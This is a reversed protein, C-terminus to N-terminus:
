YRPFIPIQQALRTQRRSREFQTRLRILIFECIDEKEFIEYSKATEIESVIYEMAEVPTIHLYHILKAALTLYCDNEITGRTVLRPDPTFKISEKRKPHSTM